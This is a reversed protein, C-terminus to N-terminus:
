MAGEDVLSMVDKFEGNKDFNCQFPKKGQNGLDASGKVSYSRNKAKKLKETTIYAPKTGYFASAEGRCYAKMNGPAVREAYAATSLVLLAIISLLKKM